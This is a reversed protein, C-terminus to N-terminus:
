TQADSLSPVHQKEAEAPNLCGDGGRAAGGQAVCGQSKRLCPKSLQASLHVGFFRSVPVFHGLVLHFHGQPRGAKDRFDRYFKRQNWLMVIKLNSYIANKLTQVLHIVLSYGGFSDKKLVFVGFNHPDWLKLIGPCGAPDGPRGHAKTHPACGQLPVTQKPSPLGIVPVSFTGKSSCTMRFFFPNCGFPLCAIIVLM